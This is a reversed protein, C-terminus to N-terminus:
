SLPGEDVYEDTPYDVPENPDEMPLMSAERRALEMDCAALHDQRKGNKQFWELYDQPLDEIPKGKHETGISWIFASSNATNQAPTVVQALAPRPQPAQQVPAAPSSAQQMEEPIYLGHLPAPFAKRLALAEACKGLMLHPMKKWMFGQADGPFYESWRATGTFMAKQGAVLKYVKITATFNRDGPNGSYIPEDTGLHQGTQEARMRFLDISTVPTYKGSRKTFHLLKDLPHVGRRTCDYFFLQLEADTAEPALTQKILAKQEDTIVISVENTLTPILDTSM